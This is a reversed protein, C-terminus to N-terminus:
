AISELIGNVIGNISILHQTRGRYNVSIRVDKYLIIYYPIPSKRSEHKKTLFVEPNKKKLIYDM